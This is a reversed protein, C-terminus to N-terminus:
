NSTIHGQVGYIEYLPTMTAIIDTHTITLIEIKQTLTDVKTNVHDLGKVEYIGGKTQSKEVPTCESGWKYHNQVMNEIPQYAEFFPKDMLDRGAAVDNAMGTNYILGNYFDHYNAM